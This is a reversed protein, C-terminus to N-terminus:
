GGLGSLLSTNVRFGFNLSTRTRSIKLIQGNFGRFLNTRLLIPSM